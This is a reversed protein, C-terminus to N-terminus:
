KKKKKNTELVKNFVGGEKKDLKVITVNSPLHTEIEAPLKDTWPPVLPIVIEPCAACVFFSVRKLGAINKFTFINKMHKHIIM